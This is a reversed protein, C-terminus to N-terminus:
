EKLNNVAENFSGTNDINVGLNKDNQARGFPRDNLKFRRHLQANNPLDTNVSLARTPCVSQLRSSATSGRKHTVAAGSRRCVHPMEVDTDLLTLRTYQITHSELKLGAESWSESPPFRHKNGIYFFSNRERKIRMSVRKEAREKVREQKNRGPMKNGRVLFTCAPVPSVVPVCQCDDNCRQVCIVKKGQETM